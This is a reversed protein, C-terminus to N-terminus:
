LSQHEIRLVEKDCRLEDAIFKNFSNRLIIDEQCLEGSYCMSCGNRKLINEIEHLTFNKLHIEM